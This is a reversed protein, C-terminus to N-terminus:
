VPNSPYPANGINNERERQAYPSRYHVTTEVAGSDEVVRDSLARFELNQQVADPATIHPVPPLREQTEIL